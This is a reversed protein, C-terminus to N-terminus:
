AAFLTLWPIPTGGFMGIFGGVVLFPGFPIYGDSRMQKRWVLLVGAVVGLVSAVLLIPVLTQWGLWAGLAALLKFDGYGMGEKGTLCKFLWYMSWLVVYGIAAGWVADAVSTGTWGLSSALLGCWLLPLVIADPLYTTEWDICALTLLAAGFGCWAGGVVGFGWRHLCAVFLLATALELAPYRWGIHQQCHNCRGRLYIWSLLPLNEWWRLAHQCHPCHSHPVALNYSAADPHATDLQEPHMQACDRQWQAEMMRPLRHVVVNLFSGVIVGCLAALAFLLFSPAIL